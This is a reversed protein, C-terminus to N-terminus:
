GSLEIEEACEIARLINGSQTRDEPYLFVSDLLHLGALPARRAPRARGFGVPCVAQAYPARAVHAALLDSEALEGSVRRVGRWTREVLSEPEARYITSTTPVYYPVYVVHEGALPNLNTFEIIGNFPVAADHVNLWFYRTARKRLKLSVCAVGLYRVARYTAALEGSEPPLLEALAALPLTSVVRDCPHAAGDALELGWVRGGDALLRAVPRGAYIAVGARELEATLRDLLLSTGGELYGLRGRSRGVRHIRHWIWAASVREADEGFKLALLPDWVVDYARQGLRRVLWPKAAIRDLPTWDRRAMSELALLGFRLRATWSLPSFRLLDLATSFSYTRGDHHFGTAAPVFRIREALGLERCLEFYGRDGACLFHYFREIRTGALDFSGLLGGIEHERQFIAVEHGRRALRLAVTLGSIGAGIVGIRM